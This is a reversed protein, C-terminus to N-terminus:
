GPPHDHLEDPLNFWCIDGLGPERGLTEWEHRIRAVVADPIQEPWTICGGHDILDVAQFGRTLMAKLLVTTRDMSGLSQDIDSANKSDWCLWSFPIYDIKAEQAYESIFDQVAKNM